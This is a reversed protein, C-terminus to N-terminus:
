QGVSSSEVFDAVDDPYQFDEPISNLLEELTSVSVRKRIVLAGESETLEVISHEDIGFSEAIQQPIQVGVTNGWRQIQVEM